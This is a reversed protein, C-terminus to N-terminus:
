SGSKKLYLTRTLQSALRKMKLIWNWSQNLVTCPFLPPDAEGEQEWSHTELTGWLAMQNFVSVFGCFPNTKLWVELVGTQSVLCMNPFHTVLHKASVWPFFSFQKWWCHYLDAASFPFNLGGKHWVAMHNPWKFNIM